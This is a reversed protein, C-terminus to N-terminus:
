GDACERLRLAPPESRPVHQAFGDGHGHRAIEVAQIELHHEKVFWGSALIAAAAGDSTPCCQLKTVPDFIMPSQRVEDLL